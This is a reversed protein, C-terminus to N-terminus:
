DAIQLLPDEGNCPEQENDHDNGYAGRDGEKGDLSM